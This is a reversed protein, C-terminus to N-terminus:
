LKLSGVFRLWGMYLRCSRFETQEVNTHLTQNAGTPCFVLCFFVKPCMMLFFLESFLMPCHKALWKECYIYIFIHIYITFQTSFNHAEQLLFFRTLGGFVRLVPLSSFCWIYKQIYIICIHIYIYIYVCM